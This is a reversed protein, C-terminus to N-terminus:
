TPSETDCIPSESQLRWNVFEWADAVKQAVPIDRRDKMALYLAADASSSFIDDRRPTHAETIDFHRIFRISIGTESDKM